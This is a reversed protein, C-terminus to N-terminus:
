AVAVQMKRQINRTYHTVAMPTVDLRKAIDVKQEGAILMKATIYEKDTLGM